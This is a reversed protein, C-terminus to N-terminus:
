SGSRQRLQRLYRQVAAEHEALTSSFFHSGDGKGTAVFFIAGTVKPQTAARLSELGPLAIPTPPLGSRTYTNYPTDRTLDSRRINGDYTSGIGYIVTPDTQLRMGRRLREIFVGAIIPRESELATEKEIISALILAEYQTALPLDPARSVWNAELEAKMRRHAMALVEIDTSGRPFHYTDPFFQGEPHMGPEGLERMIADGDADAFKPQVADNAKLLKRIDAFTSGEIFTISHLLVQGTSLQQLLGKPTQGPMLEYEGAKLGTTQRTLRAWAIWALPQELLGRQNLDAAVSRVSAGRPVEFVFPQQLQAIPKQLWVNAQWVTFVAAAAVGLALVLLIRLPRRM